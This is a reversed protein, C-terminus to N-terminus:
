PADTLGAWDVSSTGKFTLRRQFFFALHVLALMVPIEVLPGIICTFAQHSDPHYVSISVALALEFNNGASTFAMTACEEYTQGLKWSLLFSGTFMIFFYFLLPAAVWLVVLPTQLISVGQMAFMVVIAFLLAILTIPGIKKCYGNYYREDGIRRRIFIWSLMAMAFPIGLYIAVTQLTMLFSQLLTVRQSDDEAVYGFLPLIGNTFLSAYVAYLLIQLISNMGV